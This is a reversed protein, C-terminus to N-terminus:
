ATGGLAGSSAIARVGDEGAPRLLMEIVFPDAVTGALV